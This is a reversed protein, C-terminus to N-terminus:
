SRLRGLQKGTIGTNFRESTGLLWGGIALSKGHKIPIAKRLSTRKGEM